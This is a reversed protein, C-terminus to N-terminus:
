PAATAGRRARPNRHAPRTEGFSVVAELRSRSLDGRPSIRSRRRPAACVLGSTTAASGVLDTHGFVRFRVEPFQKIFNAQQDLVARAEPTLEASNFPFNITDPV